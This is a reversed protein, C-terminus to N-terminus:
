AAEQGLEAHVGASPRRRAAGRLARQRRRRRDRHRAQGEARHRQRHAASRARAPSSISPSSATSSRSRRTDGQRGTRNFDRGELIPIGMTAFYGPSLSNMFAQMDEGDKAQHGEVSMTSDWEDGSLIPVAALAASKVGPSRACATSCSSSSTSRARREYGSLAPSLQFTVLNDLAVGTDATKLNQLSRVFLGAGFLLLFSLAVQAAVLGKRLFLSGGTGAISGVTDKLTTWPDPRSARLAPLLGFVIGTLFTLGLTFGLIRADPTAHILMPSATPRCSRSCRGADARGRARHRAAGGIARCCWARSWCRGCWSGRSAGLSLRVAIEKQRMFGRAILLNAVNACAILLVLGVMCM